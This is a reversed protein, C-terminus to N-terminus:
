LFYYEVERWKQLHSGLISIGFREFRRFIFLLFFLLLFLFNKSFALKPWLRLCTFHLCILIGGPSKIYLRYFLCSYSSYIITPCFFYFICKKIYCKYGIPKRTPASIFISPRKATSNVVNFLVLLCKVGSFSINCM